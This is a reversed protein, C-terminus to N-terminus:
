SVGSSRRSTCGLPMELAAEVTLGQRRIRDKLTSTGIGFSTALAQLSPYSIGFATVPKGHQHEVKQKATLWQFNKKSWRKSENRRVLHHGPPIPMTDIM